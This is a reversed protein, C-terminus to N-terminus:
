SCPFRQYNGEASLSHELFSIERQALHLKDRNLTFGAKESRAFVERLHDLHESFSTSYVALDDM